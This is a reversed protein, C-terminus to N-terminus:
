DSTIHVGFPSERVHRGNVTVALAAARDGWDTCWDAGVTVRAKYSGDHADEAEAAVSESPRPERRFRRFPTPAASSSSLVVRVRDGGDTRPRGQADMARVTV